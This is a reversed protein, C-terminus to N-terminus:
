LGTMTFVAEDQVTLTMSVEPVAGIVGVPENLRVLLLVPLKLTGHLRESDSGPIALQV